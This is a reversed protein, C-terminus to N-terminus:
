IEGLIAGKFGIKTRSFRTGGSSSDYEKMERNVRTGGISSGHEKM